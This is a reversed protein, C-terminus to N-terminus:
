SKLEKPTYGVITLIKDLEDIPIKGTIIHIDCEIGAQDYMERLHRSRWNIKDPHGHKLLVDGDFLISVENMTNLIEGTKFDVM